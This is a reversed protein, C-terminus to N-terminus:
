QGTECFLLLSLVPSSQMTAFGSELAMGRIEICGNQLPQTLALLPQNADKSPNDFTM